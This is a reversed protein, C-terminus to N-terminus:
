VGEVMEKATRDIRIAIRFGDYKVDDEFCSKLREQMKRVGNTRGRDFANAIEFINARKQSKIENDDRLRENEETLHEINADLSHIDEVYEKTHIDVEDYDQITKSQLLHRLRKEFNENEETLRECKEGYEGFTEMFSAHEHELCQELSEIKETLEKIKQEYFQAHELCFQAAKSSLIVADTNIFKAYKIKTDIESIIEDRKLECKEVTKLDTKKCKHEM